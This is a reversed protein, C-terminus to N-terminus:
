VYAILFLLIIITVISLFIIGAVNWKAQYDIYSNISIGKRKAVKWALNNGWNGLIFCICLSLIFGIYPIFNLVIIILPWYLGNFIGWIWSLSFAGWNWQDAISPYEPMNRQVNRNHREYGRHPASSTDLQIANPVSNSSPSADQSKRTSHLQQGTNAERSAFPYNRATQWVDEGNLRVKIKEDVEDLLGENILQDFTYLEPMVSDDIKVQYKNEM